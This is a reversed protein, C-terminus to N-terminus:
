KFAKFEVLSYTLWDAVIKDRTAKFVVSSMDEQIDECKDSVVNKVLEMADKAMALYCLSKDNFPVNSYEFWSDDENSEAIWGFCDITNNGQEIYAIVEEILGMSVSHLAKSEINIKKTTLIANAINSSLSVLESGDSLKLGEKFFLPKGITMLYDRLQNNVKERLSDRLEKM